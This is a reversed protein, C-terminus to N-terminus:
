RQKFMPDGFDNIQTGDPKQTPDASSCVRERMAETKKHTTSLQNLVNAPMGCEASKAHVYNLMKAEASMFDDILKCAEGSSAHRASAARILAGRRMAEDRLAGYDAACNAQSPSSSSMGSFGGHDGDAPPKPISTTPNAGPLPAPFTNQASVVGPPAFGIMLLLLISRCGM